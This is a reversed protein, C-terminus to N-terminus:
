NEKAKKIMEDLHKSDIDLNTLIRSLTETINSLLPEVDEWKVWEGDPWPRYWGENYDQKYRQLKFKAM